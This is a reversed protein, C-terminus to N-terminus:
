RQTGKEYEPAFREKYAQLKEKGIETVASGVDVAFPLAIGVTTTYDDLYQFENTGFNNCIKDQWAQFISKVGMDEKCYLSMVVDDYMNQYPMKMIPGHTTYDITAYQRAPLQAQNCLFAMVRVDETSMFTPGFMVRFYVPRAVDNGLKAKFENVDFGTIIRNKRTAPTELVPHPERPAYKGTGNSKDLLDKSEQWDFDTNIKFPNNPDSM